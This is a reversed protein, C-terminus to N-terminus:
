RTSSCSKAPSLGRSRPYFRNEPPQFESFREKWIAVVDAPSVTVNSLRVQYTKQWLQGFGKLPNVTQRGDVNLNLASGPAASVKLRDVPKAWNGADRSSTPKSSANEPPITMM